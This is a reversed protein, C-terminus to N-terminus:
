EDIPRKLGPISIINWIDSSQAQARRVTARDFQYEVAAGDAERALGANDGVAHREVRLIEGGSAVATLRNMLM